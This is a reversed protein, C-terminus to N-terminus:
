SEKFLWLMLPMVEENRKKLEKVAKEFEEPTRHFILKYSFKSRKEKLEPFEEFLEKKLRIINWAQFGESYLIKGESNILKRPSLTKKNM